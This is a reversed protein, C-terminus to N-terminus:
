GGDSLRYLGRLIANQNASGVTTAVVKYTEIFASNETKCVIKPMIKENSKTILM